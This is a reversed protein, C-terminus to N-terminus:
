PKRMIITLTTEEKDDMKMVGEKPYTAFRSEKEESDVIIYTSKLQDM